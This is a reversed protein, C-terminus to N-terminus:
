EFEVAGRTPLPDSGRSSRRAQGELEGETGRRGEKEIKRSEAGVRGGKFLVMFWSGL